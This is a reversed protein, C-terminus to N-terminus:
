EWEPSQESAKGPFIPVSLRDASAWSPTRRLSGSGSGSRRQTQLTNDAERLGVGIEGKRSKRSSTGSDEGDSPAKEEVMVGSMRSQTSAERGLDEGEDGRGRRPSQSQSKSRSGSGGSGRFFRSRRIRHSPTPPTTIRAAAPEAEAVAIPQALSLLETVAGREGSADGEGREAGSLGVSSPAVTISKLWHRVLYNKCHSWFGMEDETPDFGRQAITRSPAFWRSLLRWKMQSVSGQPVVSDRPGNRSWLRPHETALEQYLAEYVGRRVPDFQRRSISHKICYWILLMLVMMPVASAFYWKINPNNAFIDVNMGFFGVIFTLPLFIFTIWSLRWM